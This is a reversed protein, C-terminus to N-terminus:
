VPFGSKKKKKFGLSLKSLLSIIDEYGIKKLWIKGRTGWRSTERRRLLLHVPSDWHADRLSGHFSLATGPFGIRQQFDAAIIIIWDTWHSQALNNSINYFDCGGYGISLGAYLITDYM